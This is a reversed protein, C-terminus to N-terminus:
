MFQDYGDLSINFNKIEERAEKLLEQNESIKVGSEFGGAFAVRFVRKEFESLERNCVKEMSDRFASWELSSLALGIQTDVTIMKNKM